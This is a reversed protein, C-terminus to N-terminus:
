RRGAKALKRFKHWRWTAARILRESGSKLILIEGDHIRLDSARRLKRTRVPLPVLLTGFEDETVAYLVWREGRLSELQRGPLHGTLDGNGDPSLRIPIKVAAHGKSSRQTLIFSRAQTPVTWDKLTFHLGGGSTTVSAHASGTSGRSKGRVERWVAAEDGHLLVELVRPERTEPTPSERLDVREALSRTHAVIGAVTAAQWQSVDDMLPRLVESRFVQLVMDVDSPEVDLDALIRAVDLATSRSRTLQGAELQWVTRAEALHGASVLRYVFCKRAGLLRTTQWPVCSWLGHVAASVSEVEEPSLRATDTALFQGLNGWGDTGLSTQWYQERLPSPSGRGVLSACLLEQRFYGVISRAQGLASTMSGSGLRARYHYTVEPLVTISNARTLASTMPLIDNARPTSPFHLRERLWFERLFMRNWCTRNGILRPSAALTTRDHEQDLGFAASNRWTTGPWFKQFDGVLMDAATRELATVMQLYAARPVLDDADAFTLYKGTALQVGANRAQAGGVGPNTLARIRPDRGAWGQAADLTGDTSHDDVIILEFDSFHQEAISRVAEDIWSTVNHAPMVVSLTPPNSTAAESAHRATEGRDAVPDTTPEAGTSGPDVARLAEHLAEPLDPSAFLSAIGRILHADLQMLTSANAMLVAQRICDEVVAREPGSRMEPLAALRSATEVTLFKTLFSQWVAHDAHDRLIMLAARSERGWDGLTKDAMLATTISGPRRRYLCTITPVVDIAEALVYSRTSAVVDECKTGESWLIGHDLLFDKRFLKTWATHDAILEPSETLTTRRAGTRFIPARTTWYRQRGAKRGFEDAPSTAVDSGSDRLAAAMRDLGNAVVLDDSDIFTVFEGRAARLGVNRSAGLGLNVPNDIIRVRADHQAFASAIARSHDPSCDNVVIVEAVSEANLVSELCAGIYLEVGYVPLVVSVDPVHRSSDADPYANDAAVPGSSQKM